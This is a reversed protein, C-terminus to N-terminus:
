RCAPLNDLTPLVPDLDSFSVSCHHHHYYYYYYRRLLILLVQVKNVCHILMKCHEAGHMKETLM